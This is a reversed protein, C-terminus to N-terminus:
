SHRMSKSCKILRPEIDSNRRLAIVGADQVKVACLTPGHDSRICGSHRFHGVIVKGSPGVNDAIFYGRGYDMNGARVNSNDGAGWDGGVGAIFDKM